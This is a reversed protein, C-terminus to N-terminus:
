TAKTIEQYLADACLDIEGPWEVSRGRPGLGARRTFDPDAFAVFVGGLRQYDMLDIVGSVGDDFDVRLRTGDEFKLALITRPTIKCSLETHM